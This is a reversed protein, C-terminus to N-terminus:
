LWTKTAPELRWDLTPLPRCWASAEETSCIFTGGVYKGWFHAFITFSHKAVYIGWSQALVIPPVNYLHLHWTNLHDMQFNKLDIELSVQM